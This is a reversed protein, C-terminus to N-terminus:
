RAFLGFRSWLPWENPVKPSQELAGAAIQEHILDKNADLPASTEVGPVTASSMAGKDSFSRIQGSTANATM